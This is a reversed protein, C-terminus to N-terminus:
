PLSSWVSGLRTRLEILLGHFFHTAAPMRLLTPAPSVTDLWRYVAAADVVEDADGQVVIWPGAIPVIAEFDWRSVPPAISVLRAAGLEAAMRASVYSGFSFGALWLPVEGHQGRLWQVVARLDEGEGRGQDFQGGSQGVGRFNFRLVAAGQEAFFRVLTTVVKNDMTGGHLPHPHCVVALAVAAAAPTFEAEIPGAPGPIAIKSM